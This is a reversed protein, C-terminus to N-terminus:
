RKKDDESYLFPSTLRFSKLEQNKLRYVVEGTHTHEKNYVADLVFQHFEDNVEDTDGAFFVRSYNQESINGDVGLMRSGRDNLYLIKGRKGVVLVGNNM